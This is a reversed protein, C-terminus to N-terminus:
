GAAFAHQRGFQFAPQQLFQIHALMFPHQLHAGAAAVEGGQEAVASGMHQAQVHLRFQGLGRLVLQALGPHHVGRQM